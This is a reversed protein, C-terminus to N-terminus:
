SRRESGEVRLENTVEFLGPVGRAATFALQKDMESDVVGKLTARGNKVIIHIPPVARVGYKTFLPSDWNYIARYLAIRLRDDQPSLPLVEIENVVRAVGEIEKVRAEADSKTTPRVVQGRLIVTGDPRVEYELWDFVGYWPLTALEHRVERKIFEISRATGTARPAPSKMTPQQGRRSQQASANFGFLSFLVFASILRKM